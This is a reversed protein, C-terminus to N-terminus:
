TAYSLSMSLSRQSSDYFLYSNLPTSHVIDYRVRWMEPLRIFGTLLILDCVISIFGIVIAVVVLVDREYESPELNSSGDLNDVFSFSAQLVSPLSFYM